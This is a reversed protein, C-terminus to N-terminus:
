KTQTVQRRGSAKSRLAKLKSFYPKTVPKVISWGEVFAKLIQDPLPSNELSTLKKELQEASSAGIIIADVHERRLESHYRVWRLAAEATSSGLKAAKSRM